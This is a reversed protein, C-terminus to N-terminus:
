EEELLELFKKYGKRILTIADSLSKNYKKTYAQLIMTILSLIESEEANDLRKELNKLFDEDEILPKQKNLQNIRAAVVQMNCMDCCRGEESLPYPNNGFGEFEKNCLCCTYKEM